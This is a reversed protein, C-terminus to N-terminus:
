MRWLEKTAIRAGETLSQLKAWAVRADILPVEAINTAMGCDTGAIVREKGVVEAYRIIRQAVLEPHEVYNTTSDIMGPILFKDDPLKIDQFVKWEHEHRPNAGELSLGAPRATLLLDIIEKLEVDTHHPYEDNGWCTHLRMREPPVDRLAFNIADMHMQRNTSSPLDPCDIQLMFGSQGIADYEHKMAEAVAYLYAEHSDYYHNQHYHTIVGPSPATMFVESPDLGHAGAAARLNAIDRQVGARDKMEVPGNCTPRTVTRGSERRRNFYEPFDSAWAPDSPQMEEGEFGTLRYKIYVVYSPKGAEGDNVLDLGIEKQHGVVENIARKMNEALGAADVAEGQERDLLDVLIYDPRPLSGTHTTQIHDTNLKM